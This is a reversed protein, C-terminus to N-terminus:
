AGEREDTGTVTPKARIPTMTTIPADHFFGRNFSKTLYNMFGERAANDIQKLQWSNYVSPHGLRKIYGRATPYIM